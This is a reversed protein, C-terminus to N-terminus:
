NSEKRYARAAAQVLLFAASPCVLGCLMSLWRVGWAL